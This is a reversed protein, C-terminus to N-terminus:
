LLFLFYQFCLIVKFDLNDIVSVPTAGYKVLEKLIKVNGLFIKIKLNSFFNGISAAEM